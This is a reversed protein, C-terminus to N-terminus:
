PAQKDADYDTETGSIVSSTGFDRELRTMRKDRYREQILTRKKIIEEGITFSKNRLQLYQEGDAHRLPDTHTHINGLGMCIQFMSDHM